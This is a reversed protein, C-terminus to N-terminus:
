IEVVQGWGPYHINNFGQLTLLLMLAGAADEEGHVLFLEDLSSQTSKAYKLLQTQGAHGSLGGITVVEARRDYPEGFIRVMQERDALARGLTHPAQWGVILVMNKPNQINNRLHHLIRGTEAMGSASIIIMPEHINNLSKSQDVSEIYTLLPFNLAPNRGTRVFEQTEADFIDAYKMFVKSTEVALPSDVFVPIAPVEGRTVMQNFAYVLEQTRGVAFAPIIVKGRREVARRVADRLEVYATEPEEHPKDGYTCEMVLYDAASPMVPDQLLPLRERGIDGSFWFRYSRGHEDIDLVVAASGLIHGADVFTVRVGKVVEIPQNYDVPKFYNAVREADAITYLPELPPEGRKIRKKNLFEVDAEQIHGSDRLMVDALGASARTTYIPANLGHKVLNPLNGSHDIHAHSLLVADLKAPNFSFTRNRQYYDKRHGQYLGCDLLLRYGNVELLFQSGTVTQAAGNFHINM